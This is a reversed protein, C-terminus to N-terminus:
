ESRLPSCCHGSNPGMLRQPKKWKRLALASEEKEYTFCFTHSLVLLKGCGHALRAMTFPLPLALWAACSWLWHSDERFSIIVYCVLYKIHDEARVFAWICGGNAPIFHTEESSTTRM